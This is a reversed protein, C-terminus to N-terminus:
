APLNPYDAENLIWGPKLSFDMRPPCFIDVLHHRHEGVGQSTHMIPPPIVVVAPSGCARSDDAVWHAQDPTWPTRMHHVYDGDVQLSFQEFDDHFHPSLKAPDRPGWTSPIVNVMVTSCRYIAGFRTPDAPADAVRYVRLREGDPSRPWSHFDIAHPHVAGHVALNRAADALDDSAVSFVRVVVGATTVMVESEGSPVFVVADSDVVVRAWDAAVAREDTDAVANKLDREAAAAGYGADADSITPWRVSISVAAAPRSPASVLIVAYEDPQNTRALREGAVADTYIITCTHGRVVWSRSGLATVEDQPLESFPFYEPAAFPGVASGRAVPAGTSALNSRPDTPDYPM